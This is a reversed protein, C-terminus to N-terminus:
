ENNNDGKVIEILTVAGDGSTYVDIDEIEYNLYKKREDNEDKSIIRIMEQLSYDTFCLVYERTEKERDWVAIDIIESTTKINKALEKITM